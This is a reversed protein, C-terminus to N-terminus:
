AGVHQRLRAEILARGTAYSDPFSDFLRTTAVMAPEIWEIAEYIQEHDALLTRRDLIPEHHFALNRLSNAAYYKAQIQARQRSNRPVHPFAIRLNEAKNNRWFRDNYTRSLLTVWFGFSLQSIVRDPTAPRNRDRIHQKADAIQKVQRPELFGTGEYWNSMGFHQSLTNHITNRLVIEVTGLPCFLAEALAMNWFYNTLMDLDSGGKRYRELRAESLRQKLELAFQVVM